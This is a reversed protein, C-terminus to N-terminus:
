FHEYNEKPLDEKEIRDWPLHDALKVWRNSKSLGSLSEQLEFLDHSRYQSYYKM